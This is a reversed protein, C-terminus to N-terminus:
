REKYNLSSVGGNLTTAIEIARKTEKSDVPVDASTIQSSTGSAMHVMVSSLMAM